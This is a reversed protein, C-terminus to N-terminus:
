ATVGVILNGDLDTIRGDAHILQNFMRSPPRQTAPVTGRPTDVPMASNTYTRPGAVILGKVETIVPPASRGPPVKCGVGFWYVSLQPRRAPNCTLYRLEVLAEISVSLEAHHKRCLQAIADVRRYETPTSPLNVSVIEDWLAILFRTSYGKM